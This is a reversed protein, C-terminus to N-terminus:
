NKIQLKIDISVWTKKYVNSKWEYGTFNYVFRFEDDSNVNVLYATPHLSACYAQARYQEMPPGGMM